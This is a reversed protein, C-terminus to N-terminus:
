WNLRMAKYCYRNELCCLQCSCFRPKLSCPAAWIGPFSHFCDMSFVLFSQRPHPQVPLLFSRDPPTESKGAQGSKPSTDNRSSFHCNCSSGCIPFVVGQTVSPWWSPLPHLTLFILHGSLLRRLSRVTRLRWADQDLDTSHLLWSPSVASHRVGGSLMARLFSFRSPLFPPLILPRAKTTELSFFSDFCSSIHLVYILRPSIPEIQESIFEQEWKGCWSSVADSM